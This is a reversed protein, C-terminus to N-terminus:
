ARKRPIRSVKFIVLISLPIKSLSSKSQIEKRITCQIPLPLRSRTQGKKDFCIERQTLMNTKVSIALYESPPTASEVLAMIQKEFGWDGRWDAMSKGSKFHEALHDARKQWTTMKLGCFGCTSKVDPITARWLEMSWPNFKCGHVLRLHQRLHDKRYFTREALERELCSSYNHMELHSADPRAFGCFVCSMERKDRCMSTGGSASCVWRELSLHLSKEHRQWDHKTRFSEVCFTCQFQRPASMSHSDVPRPAQRRRRRRGGKGITGFSGGRSQRSFASAFSHGSSQSTELSSTSSARALSSTEETRAFSYLSDGDSKLSTTRVAKAIASVSAPESEPPSNKWRELPIHESAPTKRVPIDVAQSSSAPSKSGPARVKGRRRANALWNTIQTKNLGTQRKLQEKEDDTPYPHQHHASLWQKLVRVAERSFRAGVKSTSSEGEYSDTTENFKLQGRLNSTARGLVPRDFSAATDALNSLRPGQSLSCPQSLAHCSTCSTVQATDRQIVLCQLGKSQCYDCLRASLRAGDIWRSFDHFDDSTKGGAEPTHAAQIYEPSNSSSTLGEVFHQLSQFSAEDNAFDGRMMNM